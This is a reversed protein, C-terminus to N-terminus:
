LVIIGGLATAAVSDAAAAILIMIGYILYSRLYSKYNIEVNDLDKKVTLDYIKKSLEFSKSITLIIITLLLCAFPAIMLMSYGFGRIGFNCYYYSIRIATEFGLIIPIVNIIPFGILCIGLLVTISFVLYYRALNHFFQQLFLSYSGSIILSDITDGQFKKYIFAGFLLGASYFFISYIITKNKKFISIINIKEKKPEAKENEKENMLLQM